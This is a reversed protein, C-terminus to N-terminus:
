HTSLGQESLSHVKASKPLMTQDVEPLTVIVQGMQKMQDFFQAKHDRDLSIGIDDALMLPTGEARNEVCAWEALKMAGVALRKQGESAYLKASVAGLGIDL